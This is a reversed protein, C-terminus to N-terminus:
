AHPHEAAPYRWACRGADWMRKGRKVIFVFIFNNKAPAVCAPWDWTRLGIRTASLIGITLETVCGASFQFKFGEDAAHFKVCAPRDRIRSCIRM